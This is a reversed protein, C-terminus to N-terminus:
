ENVARPVPDILDKTHNMLVKHINIKKDGKKRKVRVYNGTQNLVWRQQNDRMALNLIFQLYKKLSPHYVPALAEVRADLNRHMWDASGIFYLDDGGHHFYYCRSHELFRGVIAHIHINESLGKKQPILRCVSRVILDIKVGAQSAEYLKQIILPDELNNMKGIIRAPKGERAAAIETEILAMIKGRMHRPAVLLRSFNQGPAYGTLLNFIDTIDSAIEERCTFYGFDEYLQATDPHYNGTGIHVYRKLEQNEERVVITLKTHIKLGAIGYSVHAGAKELLNAWSINRQEDFRAKLEVLVAVQKGAEAARILAHMVPSNSSTRYLTQKIALVAPDGAAEEVFRQTSSEFSHYPHHVIFDGNRIVEFIGPAEEDASHKFVPHLAPTWSEYKLNKRTPLNYLQTADALGLPGEMEYVDDQKIKLHNFLYEKVDPPMKKDIELRVIEAFRRERLEDEIMELLDDAEEESRELDANRTVRFIHASLVEMGPFFRSIKEKILESVSLLVIQNDVSQLQIWRPRNAPIKIRAFLIEGTNPDKLKIALSRSKNSIFPFPHAEDVALPTIIPYLQKDFYHDAEEKQFPKLGSYTQITIGEKQLLPVLEDFFCSRYERIMKKVNKRIAKLQDEPTQGDVTLESVGAYYQRKLGGVRKQFFEDLNSCVIGIFKIREMLPVDQNLAEALVRRNFELWSTEYNFFYDAGFIKLESAILDKQLGKESLIVNKLPNAYKKKRRTKQTDVPDSSLRDPSFSSDPM